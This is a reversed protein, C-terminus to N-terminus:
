HSAGSDVVFNILDVKSRPSKFGHKGVKQIHWSKPLLTDQFSIDPFKTKLMSILSTLNKSPFFENLFYSLMYQAFDSYKRENNKKRVFGSVFNLRLKCIAEQLGSPFSSREGM